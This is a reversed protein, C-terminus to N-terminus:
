GRSGERSADPVGTGTAELAARLAVRARRLDSKVTNAPRGTLRAVSEVDLDELYYLATAERQAAPLAALADLLLPDRSDEASRPDAVEPLADTVVHWREELRRRRARNLAVNRAIALVWTTLRADGRFGALSRFARVFTDQTLDRALDEDRVMAKLYRYM